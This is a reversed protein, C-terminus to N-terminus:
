EDMNEFMDTQKNFMSFTSLTYYNNSYKTEQLSTITNNKVHQM